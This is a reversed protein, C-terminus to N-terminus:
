DWIKISNIVRTINEKLQAVNFTKKFNVQNNLTQLFSDRQDSQPYCNEINISSIGPSVIKFDCMSADYTRYCEKVVLYSNQKLYNFFLVPNTVVHNNRINLITNVIYNTYNNSVHMQIGHVFIKGNKNYSGLCLITPHPDTKWNAYTGSLVSGFVYQKVPKNQANIGKIRNFLDQFFSM